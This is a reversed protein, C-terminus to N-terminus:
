ARRGTFLRQLIKLLLRLWLRASRNLWRTLRSNQPLGLRLKLRRARAFTWSWALMLMAILRGLRHRAPTDLRIQRRGRTIMTVRGLVQQASVLPDTLLVNDGKTLFVPSGAEDNRALVRHAFLQGGQRFLIVDGRRLNDIGTVILLEDGDQIFPLMSRGQISIKHTRGSNRLMELSAELFQDPLPAPERGTPDM